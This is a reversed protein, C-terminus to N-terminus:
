GLIRYGVLNPQRIIQYRLQLIKGLNSIIQNNEKRWNKIGSTFPWVEIPSPFCFDNHSIILMTNSHGAESREPWRKSCNTRTRFISEYESISRLIMDKILTAVSLRWTRWEIKWIIKYILSEM